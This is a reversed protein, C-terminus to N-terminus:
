GAAIQARVRDLSQQSSALMSEQAGASRRAQLVAAFEAEAEALRGQHFWVKARHQRMTLGRAPDDASRAVLDSYVAEAADLAGQDRLVDARLARYRLSEPDQALLDDLIELADDYRGESTAIIAEAAEDGAVSARFEDVDSIYPRLDSGRIQYGNGLDLDEVTVNSM